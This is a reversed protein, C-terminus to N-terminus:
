AHPRAHPSPPPPAPKGLFPIDHTWRPRGLLPSALGGLVLFPYGARSVAEVAERLVNTFPQDAAARRREVSLIDSKAIAYYYYATGSGLGWRRYEQSIRVRRYEM